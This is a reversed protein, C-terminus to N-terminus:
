AKAEATEVRDTPRVASSDDKPSPRKIAPLVVTFRAGGRPSQEISVRGGHALVLDRVVSLGIGAGAVKTQEARVFPEFVRERWEPPVGHGSDDVIIAIDGSRRSVTVDVSAGHGAHKVANDLLNLVIQRFAARDIQAPTETQLDTTIMVDSAGAVPAFAEIAHGVEEGVEVLELRLTEHRSELRSFRLVSEVMATLRRAEAFIISAFHRGEEESRERRLALTEAFMSIQALPTRLEHSVNAVFRGRVRALERTRREHVLGIAALMAAVLIMLALSPLQSSPAGGVLLTNALETTIDVTTRLEGSQLTATDTAATLGPAVSSAFVVGGDKRTLRVAIKSEDLQTSSRAGPLLNAQQVARAFRERLAHPDSVIGYMGHASSHPASVVWVVIAHPANGASDFLIRHPEDDSRASQAIQVLRRELMARTDNDVSDGAVQLRRSKADYTFAFRAHDLLLADATPRAALMTEPSELTASAATRQHGKAVGAFARMAEDHLVTNARRAYQWAAIGAYDHIVKHTVAAYQQEARWTRLAVLLLLLIPTFLAVSAIWRTRDVRAGSGTAHRGNAAPM